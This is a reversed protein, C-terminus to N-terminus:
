SVVTSQLRGPHIWCQADPEGMGPIASARNSYDSTLSNTAETFLPINFIQVTAPLQLDDYDSGMRSRDGMIYSDMNRVSYEIKADKYVQNHELLHSVVVLVRRRSVMIPHFKHIDSFTPTRNPGVFIVCLSNDLDHPDSPIVTRVQFVDQPMIAVNSPSFGQPVAVNFTREGSEDCDRKNKEAYSHTIKSSRCASVLQLEYLSATRFAVLVDPKLKEYAHYQSNAWSDLPQRRQISLIRHCGICLQM